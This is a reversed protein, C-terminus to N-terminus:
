FIQRNGFRGDFFKVVPEFKLIGFFRAAISSITGAKLGFPNISSDFDFKLIFKTAPRKL